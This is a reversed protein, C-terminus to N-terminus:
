AIAALIALVLGAVKIMGFLMRQSDSSLARAMERSDFMGLNIEAGHQIFEPVVVLLPVWLAIRWLRLSDQATDRVLAWAAMAWGSM